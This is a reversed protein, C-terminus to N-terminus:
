DGDSGSRLDDAVGAGSGWWISQRLGCRAAFAVKHADKMAKDYSVLHTYEVAAAQLVGNGMRWWGHKTGAHAAEIGEVGFGEILLGPMRDKINIDFLVRM